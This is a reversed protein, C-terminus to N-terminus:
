AARRYKSILGGLVQRREIRATRRGARMQPCDQVLVRGVVVPLPDFAARDEAAEDVLILPGCLLGLDLSTASNHFGVLDEVVDEGDVESRVNVLV